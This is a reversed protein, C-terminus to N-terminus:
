DLKIVQALELDVPASRGFISVEVKVRDLGSLMQVVGEFSAFPGCDVLVRDGEKLANSLVDAVDQNTALYERLELVIADAIPVPREATGLVAVIGEVTALGAWSHPANITRVFIYGPWAVVDVATRAGKSRRGRRVPLVKRVPLWTEIGAKALSKEVSIEARPNVQLVYWRSAPGSQGAAALLAQARRSLSRQRDSAAYCRDLNIAQADNLRKPDVM